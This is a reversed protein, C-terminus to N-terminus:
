GGTMLAKLALGPFMAEPWTEVSLQCTDPAEVTLMVPMPLTAKVPVCTIEGPM